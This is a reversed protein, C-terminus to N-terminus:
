LQDKTNDLGLTRRGEDKDNATDPPGCKDCRATGISKFIQVFSFLRKDQPTVWITWAEGGCAKCVCPAYLAGVAVPVLQSCHLTALSRM